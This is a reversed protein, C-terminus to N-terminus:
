LTFPHFLKTFTDQFRLIIESSITFVPTNTIPNSQNSVSDATLNNWNEHFYPLRKIIKAVTLKGFVLKPIYHFLIIWLTSMRMQATKDARDTNNYLTEPRINTSHYRLPILFSSTLNHHLSHGPMQSPYCLLFLYVEISNMGSHRQFICILM